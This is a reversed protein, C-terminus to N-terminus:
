AQDKTSKRAGQRALMSETNTVYLLHAIKRVFHDEYRDLNSDAFAVRWLHEILAIRSEMPLLRKIISVPGFYSTFRHAGTEAVLARADSEPLDFMAMLALACTESEEPREELDARIMEHLLGAVAVQLQRSESENPKQLDQGSQGSLLNKLASLM